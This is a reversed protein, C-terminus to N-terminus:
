KSEFRIKRLAAKMSDVKSNVVGYKQARALRKELEEKSLRDFENKKKPEVKARKNSDRGGKTSGKTEDRGSGGSKRKQKKKQQNSKKKESETGVVPMQFRAARARKKEAFSMDSTVKKVPEPAAAAPTDSKEGSEPKKEEERKEPEEAPEPKEEVKKEPAPEAKKEEVPAAKPTDKKPTEKAAPSAAADPAEALGFEEEDLRAQLRNVM